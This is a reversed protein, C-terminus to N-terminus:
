EFRSARIAYARSPAPAPEEWAVQGAGNAGFGIALGRIRNSGPLSVLRQVPDWAQGPVRRTAYVSTAEGDWLLWAALASGDPAGALVPQSITGEVPPAVPALPEYGVGNVYVRSVLDANLVQGHNNRSWLLLVNGVADMASRPDMAYEPLWPDPTAPSYGDIYEWTLTNGPLDYLTGAPHAQGDASRHVMRVSLSTAGGPLIEIAPAHDPASTGIPDSGITPVFADWGSGPTYRALVDSWGLFSCCNHDIEAWRAAAVGNDDVAIRGGAPWKHPFGMADSHNPLSEPAGWGTGSEYMASRLEGDGMSHTLERWLVAARGGPAVALDIEFISNPTSVLVSRAQWGSVPDRFRALLQYSGTASDFQTSVLLVRGAGDIALAPFGSLGPFQADLSWGTGADHRYVAMREHGATYDSYAYTGTGDPGVVLNAPANWLPGEGEAHAVLAAPGFRGTTFNWTTDGGLANGASDTVTGALTAQYSLGRDLEAAPTFAVTRGDALLVTAGAVPTGNRALRVSGPSVSAPDIAEDLRVTVAADLAVANAGDAPTQSEVQPALVDPSANGGDGSGGGGCAGLGLLLVASLCSM